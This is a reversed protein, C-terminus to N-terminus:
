AITGLAKIGVGDDAVSMLGDIVMGFALLERESEQAMKGSIEAPPSNSKEPLKRGTVYLFVAVVLAL